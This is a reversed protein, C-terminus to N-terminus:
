VVVFNSYHCSCSFVLFVLFFRWHRLLVNLSTWALTDIVMDCSLVDHCWMISQWEGKAILTLSLLDFGSCRSIERKQGATFMQINWESAPIQLILTTFEAQRPYQKDDPGGNFRKSIFFHMLILIIGRMKLPAWTCSTKNQVAAGGRARGSTDFLPWAATKTAKLKQTEPLDAVVKLLDSYVSSLFIFPLLTIVTNRVSGETSFSM